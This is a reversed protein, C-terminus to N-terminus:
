LWCNQSQCGHRHTSNLKTNINMVRRYNVIEFESCVILIVSMMVDAECPMRQWFIEFLELRAESSCCPGPHADWPNSLQPRFTFKTVSDWRPPLQGWLLLQAPVALYKTMMLWGLIIIVKVCMRRDQKDDWGGLFTLLGWRMQWDMKQGARLKVAWWWAM